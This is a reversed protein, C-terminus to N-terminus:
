RAGDFQGFTNTVCKPKQQASFALFGEMKVLNKTCQAEFHKERRIYKFFVNLLTSDSSFISSVTLIKVFSKPPQSITHLRKQVGQICISHWIM